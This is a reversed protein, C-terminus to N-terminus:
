RTNFDKIQITIPSNDRAMLNARKGAYLADEQMQERERRMQQSRERFSPSYLLSSGETKMNFASQRRNNPDLTNTGNRKMSSTYSGSDYGSSNRGMSNTSYNPLKVTPAATTTTTAAVDNNSGSSGRRLTSTGDGRGFTYVKPANLPAPSSAETNPRILRPPPSSDTRQKKGDTTDEGGEGHLLHFLEPATNLLGEMFQSKKDETGNTRNSTYGSYTDRSESKKYFDKDPYDESNDVNLHRTSSSRAISAILNPSRLSSLTTQPKVNM